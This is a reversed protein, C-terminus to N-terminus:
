SNLRFVSIVFQLNSLKNFSTPSQFVIKSATKAFKTKPINNFRWMVKGSMVPFADFQSWVLWSKM